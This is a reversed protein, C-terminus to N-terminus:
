VDDINQMDNANDDAIINSMFIAGHKRSSIYHWVFIVICCIIETIIKRTPDDCNWFWDLWFYFALSCLGGYILSLVIGVYPVRTLLVAVLGIAAGIALGIAIAGIKDFDNATRGGEVFHPYIYYCCICAIATFDFLFMNRILKYTVWFFTKIMSLLIQIFFLFAYAM